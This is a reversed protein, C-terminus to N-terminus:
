YVYSIVKRMRSFIKHFLSPKHLAIKLLSTEYPRHHFIFTPHTMPMSLEKAEVQSRGQSDEFTHTAENDFGINQVLSVSPVVALGSNSAVSFYWQYDWTDIKRQYTEEFEFNRQPFFPYVNIMNTQKAKPWLKMEVDFHSWARRWTAWGWCFGFNSFIYSDKGADIEGLPNYGSIHWIREDQEYRELLEQCFRFFSRSPMCDDELIIGKKEYSFFWDIASSVALRCGLNEERWLTKVECKWDINSVLFERLENVKEVEGVRTRRAGDGAIYIRTPAVDRIRGFVRKAHKVRNFVLFLVAVDFESGRNKIEM